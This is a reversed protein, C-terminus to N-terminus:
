GVGQFGSSGTIIQFQAAFVGTLGALVEHKINPIDKVFLLM